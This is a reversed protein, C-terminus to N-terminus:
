NNRGVINGVILRPLGDILGVWLDGNFQQCSASAPSVGAAERLPRVALM